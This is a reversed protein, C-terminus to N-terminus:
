DLISHTTRLHRDRSPRRVRTAGDARRHLHLPRRGSARDLDLCDALHRRFADLERPGRIPAPQRHGHTLYRREPRGPHIPHADRQCVVPQPGPTRATAAGISSSRSSRPVVTVACPSDRLLGRALSRHLLRGLAGRRTSGLVLVDAAESVALQRLGRRASGCELAPFTVAVDPPLAARAEDVRGGCGATRLDPSRRQRDAHSTRRVLDRRTVGASSAFWSCSSGASSALARWRWPAKEAPSGDFAVIVHVTAAPTDSTQAGARALRRHSRPISRFSLATPTDTTM